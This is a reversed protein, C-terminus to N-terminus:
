ARESRGAKGWIALIILPAYAVLVCIYPNILAEQACFAMPLVWFLNLCMYILTAMAHSYRRSLYQYAHTRHASAWSKGASLRRALTVLSDTVFVAILILSAFPSLQGSATGWVAGIVITIAFYYAGADGMFIKAPSWNFFLFVLGAAVVGALWLWLGQALSDGLFSSYDGALLLMAALVFIAQAAALGDIGDMFNFLNIWLVSGIGLVPLLLWLPGIAELAAWLGFFFQFYILVGGIAIAQMFLRFRVGLGMRDDILGIGGLASAVLLPVLVHLEGAIAASFGAVGAGVIVGMGGGTAMNGQHSSRSNAGQLLGLTRANGILLRVAVYSVAASIILVVVATPVILM